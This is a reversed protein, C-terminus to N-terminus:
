RALIVKTTARAGASEVSLLYVGGGLPRGGADRGNWHFRNEGATLLSNGIVAVRRGQLDLLSVRAPRADLSQVTVELGGFVVPNPFVSVAFPLPRRGIDAVGVQSQAVDLANKVNMIGSGLDRPDTYPTTTELLIAVKASDDLGPAFSELLAVGGCVHPSSMSTGSLIAVYHHTLDPDDPNAYTSLINDGPAALDVWAGYNSYSAGNGLSDTAAVNVVDALSGLYDQVSNGSNGASHVVVVDRAILAAV